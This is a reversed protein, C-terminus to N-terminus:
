HMVMQPLDALKVVDDDTEDRYFGSPVRLRALILPSCSERTSAEGQLAVWADRRLAYPYSDPMIPEIVARSLKAPM